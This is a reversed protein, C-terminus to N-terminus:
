VIFHEDMPALRDPSAIRELACYPEMPFPAKSRPCKSRFTPEGAAFASRCNIIRQMIAEVHIRAGDLYPFDTNHPEFVFSLDTGALLTADLDEREILTHALTRLEERESVSAKEM